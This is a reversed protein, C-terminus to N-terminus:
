RFNANITQHLDGLTRISAIRSAPIRISFQQEAEIMLNLHNFSDWGSM